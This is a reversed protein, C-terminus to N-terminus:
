AAIFQWGCDCGPPCNVNRKFSGKLANISAVADASGQEAFLAKYIISCLDNRCCALGSAWVQVDVSALADALKSDNGKLFKFSSWCKTVHPAENGFATLLKIREDEGPATYIEKFVQIIQSIMFVKKKKGRPFVNQCIWCQNQILMDNISKWAEAAEKKSTIDNTGDGLSHYESVPSSDVSEETTM